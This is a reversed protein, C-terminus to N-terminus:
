EPTMSYVCWTRSAATRVTLAMCWSSGISKPMERPSVHLLVWYLSSRQYMSTSSPLRM